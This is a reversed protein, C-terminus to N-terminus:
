DDDFHALRPAKIPHECQLSRTVLVTASALMLVGYAAFVGYDGGWNLAKGVVLFTCVATTIGLLMRISFSPLRRSGATHARVPTRQLVVIVLAGWAIAAIASGIFVCRAPFTAERPGWHFLSISLGLIGTALPYLLSYYLLPRSGIRTATWALAFSALALLPGAGLITETEWWVLLAAFIAGSMLVLCFVATPRLTTV